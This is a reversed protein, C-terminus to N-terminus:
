LCRRSVKASFHSILWSAFVVLVKVLFPGSGTKMNRRIGWFSKDSPKVTGSKPFSRFSGQHFWGDMVVSKGINDQRFHKLYSAIEEDTKIHEPLTDPTLPTSLGTGRQDLWLIQKLHITLHTPQGPDFWWNSSLGRSLVEYWLWKKKGSPSFLRVYKQLIDLTEKYHLRRARAGQTARWDILTKSISRDSFFIQTGQLYVVIVKVEIRVQPLSCNICVLPFSRKNRVRGLRASRFQKGRSCWSRRERRIPTTLHFESFGSLWGWGRQLRVSHIVM